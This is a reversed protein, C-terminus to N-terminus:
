KPNYNAVFGRDAFRSRKLFEIKGSYVVVVDRESLNLEKRLLTRAYANFKFLEPDTGLPIIRFKSTPLNYSRSIVKM